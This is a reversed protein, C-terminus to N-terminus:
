SAKQIGMHGGIGRGDGNSSCAWALGSYGPPLHSVCPSSSGWSGSGM